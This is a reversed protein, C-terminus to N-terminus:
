TEKRREKYDRWCERALDIDRHQRKKAGGGLLIILLVGDIGFYVRYGPGFGIKYELVGAGVSKVNSSHGQELRTLATTVRAAAEANLREFWKAFPSNGEEDIYERIAVM